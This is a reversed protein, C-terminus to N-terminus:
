NEEITIRIIRDGPPLNANEDPNRPTLQEVVDLGETVLGFVTFGGNLHDAPGLTIFFQSGNTDRGANAMAVLGADNFLIGADENEFAYGPGGFGTGTPDGAQVIFGPIVRHFTIGEYWGERALFVFNNVALPALHPLLEIRVTGHELEITAFYTKDLDIVLPPCDQYQIEPLIMLNMITTLSHYDAPGDYVRGEIIVFPAFPIGLDRAEQFSEQGLEIYTTGIMAGAFQDANLGLEGAREVAWDRFLDATLGFWEVQNQYVIDHMQWFAGQHGAAEVVQVAVNAKDNLDVQPFHRHVIRLHDPFDTQLQKLLAAWQACAECQFDNYIIITVAAGEPGFSQENATTMPVAWSDASEVLPTSAATCGPMPQGFVPEVAASTPQSSADGDGSSDDLSTDQSVAAATTQTPEVLSVSGDESVATAEGSQGGNCAALGYILLLFLLTNRLIKM